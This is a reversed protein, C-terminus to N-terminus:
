QENKVGLWFFYDLAFQYFFRMRAPHIRELLTILHIVYHPTRNWVKSLWLLGARAIRWQRSVENYTGIKLESFVEPHKQMFLIATRGKSLNDQALASFDKEYHQHALAEKSYIIAIGASRLRLALELDENGYIKFDEDFLGVDLLHEKRISFNGSYFDRLNLQYGPQSLKEFHQGFKEAIYLSVLPSGPGSRVPVAGVVGLNKQGQHARWHAELFEPAPEMDDDLLVILDSEANRIGTNCAAARGRNLQPIVRLCYRVETNAILEQTGDTSGDIVVLVEFSDPMISQAELAKLLRNVSDRRQYTPIVLSVCKSNV